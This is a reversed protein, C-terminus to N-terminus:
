LATASWGSYRVRRVAWSGTAPGLTPTRVNAAPLGLVITEGKVDVPYAQVQSGENRGRNDQRHVRSAISVETFYVPWAGLSWSMKRAALYLLRM